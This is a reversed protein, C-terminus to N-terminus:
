LEEAPVVRSNDFVTHGLLKVETGVRYQEVFNGDADFEGAIAHYKTVSYLLAKYEVSGGDKYRLKVPLLLVVAAVVALIIWIAKRSKKNKNAM